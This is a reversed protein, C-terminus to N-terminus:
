RRKWQIKNRKWANKCWHWLYGIMSMRQGKSALVDIDHFRTDSYITFEKLEKLYPKYIYRKISKSLTYPGLYFENFKGFDLNRMFHFHYIILKVNQGNRSVYVNDDTGHTVDYQQINWPACLGICQLDYINEYKQHFEDLYKQDGFRGPEYRGFCWEVCQETWESLIKLGNDNFKFYLYGACYQGNTAALNYWSTYQHDMLMVDADPAEEYLPTPDSFFYLDADLYTCDKLGFKNYCFLLSPGKCTWSYEGKNRSVKITKLQPYFDEVDAISLISAHPMDQRSLLQLCYDDMAVIFVHFDKCVRELSHYLAMGKAAYNAYFITCFCLKSM